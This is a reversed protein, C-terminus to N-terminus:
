KPRIVAFSIERTKGSSVKFAKSEKRLPDCVFAFHFDEPFFVMQTRVDTSSLFCGYNPHSHAWGVIVKDQKEKLERSLNEFAKQSFSVSVATADNDATIYDEVVVYRVGEFSYVTGLLFGLAELGGEAKDAFHASTKNFANEQFYVEFESAM